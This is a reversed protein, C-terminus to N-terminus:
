VELVKHKPITHTVYFTPEGSALKDTQPPNPLPRGVPRIYIENQIMRSAGGEQVEPKALLLRWHLQRNKYVCLALVLLVLIVSIVIWWYYDLGHVRDNNDRSSSTPALTPVATPVNTPALTPFTTPVATPTATPTQTSPSLSPTSTPIATPTATPAETIMSCLWTWAYTSCNNHENSWTHLSSAVREGTACGADPERCLTSPHKLPTLCVRSDNVPFTYNCTTYVHTFLTYGPEATTSNVSPASTLTGQTLGLAAIALILM